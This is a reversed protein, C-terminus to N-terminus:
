RGHCLRQSDDPRRSGKAVKVAENGKQLRTRGVKRAAYRGLDDLSRAQNCCGWEQTTRKIVRNAQSLDNQLYQSRWVDQAIFDLTIGKGDQADEM